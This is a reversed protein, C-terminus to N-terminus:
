GAARYELGDLSVYNETNVASGGDYVVATTFTSPVIAVQAISQANGLTAFRAVGAPASAPDYIDGVVRPIQFISANTINVSCQVAGELHVMGENDKWYHVPLGSVVQWPTGPTCDDLTPTRLDIPALKARGVSGDGIQTSGVAGGAIDAGGISGDNVQASGIAGNAVDASGISGDNVQASGIAGNAIDAGGLSQDIVNSGDVSNPAQESAKVANEKIQRSGVSDRRLHAAAYGVGGLAVFLALTAMVNAYSLKTRFAKLM